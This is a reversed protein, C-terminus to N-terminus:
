TRMAVNQRMPAHSGSVYLGMNTIDVAHLDRIGGDAPDCVLDQGDRFFPLLSWQLGDVRHHKQVRDVIRNAAFALDHLFSNVNGDANIQVSLFINQAHPDAFVLAGFEPSSYSLPSLFRPTSSIKMAQVSLRVPNEAAISATNGLVSIWFQM